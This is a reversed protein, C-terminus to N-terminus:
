GSTMAEGFRDGDEGVDDISPSDQTWIEGGEITEGDPSQLFGSPASYTVEVAGTASTEVFPGGGFAPIGIALDHSGSGDFDGTALSTAFGVYKIGWRYQDIVFTTSPGTPSGYIINISGPGGSACCANDFPSGVVLDAYLDGNNYNGSTLTNGFGHHGPLDDGLGSSSQTWIQDPLITASLGSPSGFIVNVTGTNDTDFGDGPVGIALDDFGDNNFDNSALSTAFNDGPHFPLSLDEPPEVTGEIGPSEQTWLQNPVVSSSLGTTSGYIVTAAGANAASSVDKHPIGAALDDFGDDNFDGAALFTGFHDGTESTGIINSAPNGTVSYDSFFRQSSAAALGSPSGYLITVSGAEAKGNITDNPVGIALDQFGDHNFDGAVLSHGFHDNPQGAKLRASTQTWIQDKTMANPSLGSSSGYIVNVAGADTASGIDEYPVGTALDDYGDKNFDGAAVSSGFMDGEESVDRINSSDDGPISYDQFFRQDDLPETASLGDASGYIVNVLGADAKGNVDEGPAGVALDDYGDGNFDATNEVAMVPANTAYAPLVSLSATAAIIAISAAFLLSVPVMIIAPVNGDSGGFM